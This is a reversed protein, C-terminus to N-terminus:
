HMFGEKHSDVWEFSLSASAGKQSVYHDTLKKIQQGSRLAREQVLGGGFDVDSVSVVDLKVFEGNTSNATGMASQDAIFLEFQKSSFVNGDIAM